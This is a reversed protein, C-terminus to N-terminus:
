SAETTSGNTAATVLEDVQTQTADSHTLLVLELGAPSSLTASDDLPSCRFFPSSLTTADDLSSGCFFLTPRFRDPVGHLLNLWQKWALVNVVAELAVSVVEEGSLMRIRLM